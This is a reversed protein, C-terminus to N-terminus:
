LCQGKRRLVKQRSRMRLETRRSRFIALQTKRTCFQKVDSAYGSGTYNGLMVGDRIPGAVPLLVQVGVFKWGKNTKCMDQEITRANRMVKKFVEKENRARILYYNEWLKVLANSNPPRVKDILRYVFITLYWIPKRLPSSLAAQKLLKRPSAVLSKILDPHRRTEQFLVECGDKIQEYIPILDQIGVFVRPPIACSGYYLAKKYANNPGAAKLLYIAESIRCRERGRRGPLKKSFVLVAAFWKLDSGGKNRQSKM